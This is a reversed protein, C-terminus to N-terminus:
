GEDWNCYHADQNDPGEAEVCFEVNQDIRDVITLMVAGASILAFIVAAVLTAKGIYPLAQAVAQKLEPAQGRSKQILFNVGAMGSVALTSFFAGVAGGGFFGVGGGLVGNTTLAIYKKLSSTREDESMNVFVNVPAKVLELFDM